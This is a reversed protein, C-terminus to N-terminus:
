RTVRSSTMLLLNEKRLLKPACRYMDVITNALKEIGLVLCSVLVQFKGFWQDLKDRGPPVPKWKNVVCKYLDEKNLFLELTFGGWNVREEGVIQLSADPPLPNFRLTGVHQSFKSPEFVIASALTETIIREIIEQLRQLANQEQSASSDFSVSGQCALAVM